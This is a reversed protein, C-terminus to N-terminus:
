SLVLIKTPFLDRLLVLLQMLTSGKGVGGFSCVFSIFTWSAVFKIMDKPGLDFNGLSLVWPIRKGLNGTQSTKEEMTRLVRLRFGDDVDEIAENLPLRPESSFRSLIKWTIINAHTNPHQQGFQSFSNWQVIYILIKVPAQQQQRQRHRWHQQRFKVEIHRQAKDSRTGQM